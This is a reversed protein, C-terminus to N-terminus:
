KLRVNKNFYLVLQYDLLAQCPLVLSPFELLHIFIHIPARNFLGRFPIGAAAGARLITPLL